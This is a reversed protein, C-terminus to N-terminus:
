KYRRATPARLCDSCIPTPTEKTRQHPGRLSVAARQPSRLTSDHAPLRSKGLAIRGPFLQPPSEDDGQLKPRSLLPLRKGIPPTPSPPAATEPLRIGPPPLALLTSGPGPGPGASPPAPQTPGVRPVPFLPSRRLAPAPADREGKVFYSAVGGQMLGEGALAVAPSFPLPAM